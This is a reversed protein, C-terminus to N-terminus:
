CCRSWDVQIQDRLSTQTPNKRQKVKCECKEKTDAHLAPNPKKKRMPEHFFCLIKKGHHTCKVRWKNLFLSAVQRLQKHSAFMHGEEFLASCVQLNSLQRTVSGLTMILQVRPLFSARWTAVFTPTMWDSDLFMMKCSAFNGSSPALSLELDKFDPVPVVHPETPHHNASTNSNDMTLVHRFSQKPPLFCPLVITPCFHCPKSHRRGAMNLTTAGGAFTQFKFSSPSLSTHELIPPSLSGSHPESDTL